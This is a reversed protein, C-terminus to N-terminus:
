TGPAAEFTRSTSPVTVAAGPAAARYVDLTRRACDQWSYRAAQRLGAAAMMERARADGAIRHIARALAGDDLPNDVFAAAGGLVERLAPLGSALVPTGAAMAELPPLGFSEARSPFVFLSASRYLAGLEGDSIATGDIFHVRGALGAARVAAHVSATPGSGPTAVVVLRHPLGMAAARAYARVVTVLNKRAEYSGVFLISPADAASGHRLPVDDPVDVGNYVAVVRDGKLGLMEIIESREVESVTIVRAARAAARLNWRYFAVHLRPLRAPGSSYFTLPILDHLTVVLPCPLRRPVPPWSPRPHVTPAHFVDLRWRRVHHPLLALYSAPTSLKGLGMRPLPQWVMEDPVSPPRRCGAPAFLVYRHGPEVTPLHQLLRLLYRGIGSHLTRPGLISADIGIRM